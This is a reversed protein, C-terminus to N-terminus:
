AAVSNQRFCDRWFRSKIVVLTVKSLHSVLMSFGGGGVEEPMHHSYYGLEASRKRVRTIIEAPVGKDPDVNEKEALPQLEREVWQRFSDRMIQTEESLKFDM